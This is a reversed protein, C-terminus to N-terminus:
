YDTVAAPDDDAFAYDVPYADTDAGPLIRALAVTHPCPDPKANADAWAHAAAAANAAADADTDPM